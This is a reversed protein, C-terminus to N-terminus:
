LFPNVVKMSGITQGHQLDESYLTSCGAREASALILSDYIRFGHRTSLAVARLHTEYDLPVPPGCLAVIAGLGSEVAGWSFKLRQTAVDAFENLVQVSVIGGVSM